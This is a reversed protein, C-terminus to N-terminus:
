KRAYHKDEADSHKWNRVVLVADRVKELKVKSLKHPSEREEAHLSCGGYSKISITDDYLKESVIYRRLVEKEEIERDIFEEEQEYALQEEARMQERERKRKMKKEHCKGCFEKEVERQHDATQIKIASDKKEKRKKGKRSLTKTHKEDKKELKNKALCISDVIERESSIQQTIQVEPVKLQHKLNKLKKKENSNHKESTKEGGYHKDKTKENSQHRCRMNENSYHRERLKEGFHGDRMEENRDITQSSRESKHHRENIKGNSQHRERIKENNHQRERIRGNSSHIERTNKNGSQRNLTSDINLHDIKTEENSIHRRKTVDGKHKGHEKNSKVEKQKIEAKHKKEQKLSTEKQQLVEIETKLLTGTSSTITETDDNEPPTEPLPPFTFTPSSPCFEDPDPFLDQLDIDDEQECPPSHVSLSAPM